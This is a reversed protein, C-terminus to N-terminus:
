FIPPRRQFDTRRTRPETDHNGRRSGLQHGRYAHRRRRPGHLLREVNRYQERQDFRESQPVLEFAGHQQRRGRNQGRVRGSEGRRNTGPFYREHVRRCVPGLYQCGSRRGFGHRHYRVSGDLGRWGRFRVEARVRGPRRRQDPGALRRRRVRGRLRGDRRGCHWQGSGLRRDRVPPDLSGLRQLRVQARVCRRGRCQDSRRIHRDNRRQRLPGHHGGRHRHRLRRVHHRIPADLSRDGNSDYKRAFADQGGSTIQGLLSGGTTGAVYIGSADVTAALAQDASSSGFQRTWLENGGVDYKRVFADQGGASTQGPFTGTTSGTVYVGTADAAIGDASETGTTGFQRVWLENGSADFKRVFADQGATNPFGPVHEEVAGAVYVGSADVAIAFAGNFALLGASFQRTWLETGSADYKRVFASSDSGNPDFGFGQQDPLHGGVTGAVYVNGDADVARASDTAPLRLGFQRTWAITGGADYKRVFSDMIGVIGGGGGPLASETYGVAYVGGADGAVGLVGDSRLGGFQRAWVETGGSDFKRVSADWWGESGSQGPEGAFGAVYVGSAAAVVSTAGDFDSDTGFQRTWLENGGADYKRVFSDNGGASTQGPLALGGGVTGAVYAGSADVSVGAVVDAGATGFQRTWIETGASDFKRLYGDTGGASTQGPISGNVVGGVYVGSADVAVGQATSGTRFGFSNRGGFQQTWLESGNADYKRVFADVGGSSSQGPLAGGTYGVVYVGSADAAVGTAADEEPSGFANFTGFQRNWLENGDQDLKRVFGDINGSNTPLPVVMRGVIYVGSADAAIGFPRDLTSNAVFERTWLLNGTADYKRVYPSQGTEGAVYVNGGSVVVARAPDPPAGGSLSGFQRLWDIDGPSSPVIRDELQLLHLRKSRLKM